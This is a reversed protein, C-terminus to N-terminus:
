LQRRQNIVVDCEVEDWKKVVGCGVGSWHVDQRWSLARWSVEGRMEVDNCKM